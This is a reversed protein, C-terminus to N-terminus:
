NQNRRPRSGGGAPLTEIVVRNSAVLYTRVAKQTDAATVALQQDIETNIRNPDNYLAADDALAQARSLVTLRNEAARELAIRVRRLEKATVPESHLKAIEESILGEV